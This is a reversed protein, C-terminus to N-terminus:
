ETHLHQRGMGVDSVIIGLVWTNTLFFLTGALWLGPVFTSKGLFELQFGQQLWLAQTAVWLFAATLGLYKRALLSSNPLYFPLFVM